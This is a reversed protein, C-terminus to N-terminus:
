LTILGSIQKFIVTTSKCSVFLYNMISVKNPDIFKFGRPFAYTCEMLILSKINKPFKRKIRINVVYYRGYIFSM